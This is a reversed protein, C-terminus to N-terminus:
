GNKVKYHLVDLLQPTIWDVKDVNLLQLVEEETLVGSKILIRAVSESCDLKKKSEYSNTYKIKFFSLIRKIGLEIITHYDYKFGIFSDIIDKTEVKYQLGFDYGRVINKDYMDQLDRMNYHYLNFEKTKSGLAEAMTVDEGDIDYIIASHSYFHGMGMRITKSFFGSYSFNLVHFKKFEM